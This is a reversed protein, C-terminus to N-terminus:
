EKTMKLDTWQVSEGAAITLSMSLEKYGKATITVDYSGPPVDIYGPGTRARNFTVGNGQPKFKLTYRVGKLPNDEENVPGIFLKGTPSAFVLEFHGPRIKTSNEDIEAQRKKWKGGTIDELLKLIVDHPPANPESERYYILENDWSVRNVKTPSPVVWGRLKLEAAVKQVLPLQADDAYRIYFRPPLKEALGTNTEASTLLNKDNQVALASVRSLEEKVRTTDNRPLTLLLALNSPFKDEKIWESIKALAQLKTNEDKGTIVQFAAEYKAKQDQAEQITAAAEKAKLDAEANQRRSEVLKKYQYSAVLGLAVVGIILTVFGILLRKLL